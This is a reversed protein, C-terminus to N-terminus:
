LLISSPAADTDRSSVQVRWNPVALPVGALQSARAALWTADVVACGQARLRNSLMQENFIALAKSEFYPLSSDDLRFRSHWETDQGTGDGTLWGLINRRYGPSVPATDLFPSQPRGSFFGEGGRVSVFSGLLALEAPALMVFSTRLWSQCRQGLLVVPENYYDVHGIAAARGRALCLMRSDFRDLYKVYLQRFASTALHVYDYEHLRDGVYKVASDWASFEWAENSAGILRTGGVLVEEHGLPLSNDAVVCEHAVDPMQRAFLADIQPLADAYKAIGHRALLTLIKM